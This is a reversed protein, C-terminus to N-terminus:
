AGPSRRRATVSTSGGPPVMASAQDGSRGPLQIKWQWKTAVDRVEHPEAGVAGSARRVPQGRADDAIRIVAGPMRPM